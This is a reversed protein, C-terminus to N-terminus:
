PQPVLLVDLRGHEPVKLGLVLAQLAQRAQGEAPPVLAQIQVSGDSLNRRTSRLGHRQFVQELQAATEQPVAVSLRQAQEAGRMLTTEDEDLGPSWAGQQIGPWLWLSLLAIASTPLMWRWNFWAVKAPKANARTQAPLGSRGKFVGQARWRAILAEDAAHQTPAMAPEEALLRERLQAGFQHADTQAAAPADGRMGRLCDDLRAADEFPLLPDSDPSGSPRNSM